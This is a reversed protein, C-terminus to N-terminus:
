PATFATLLEKPPFLTFFDDKSMVGSSEFVGDNNADRLVFFPTTGADFVNVSSHSKLEARIVFGLTPHKHAFLSKLGTMGPVTSSDLVAPPTGATLFLLNSCDGEQQGIDLKYIVRDSAVGRALILLYDGYPNCAIDFAPTISPCTLITRRQITPGALTAAVGIADEPTWTETIKPGLAHTNTITWEEVVVEAQRERWGAVYIVNSKGARRCVATPSYSTSESDLRSTRATTTTSFYWKLIIENSHERNNYALGVEVDGSAGDLQMISAFRGLKGLTSAHEQPLSVGQSALTVTLFANAILAAAIINM